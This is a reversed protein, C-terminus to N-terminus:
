SVNGNSLLEVARTFSVQEKFMYWDIVDGSAGCGHCFYFNNKINLSPSKDNHFPCIAMYRHHKILKELPFERARAVREIDTGKVENTFLKVEFLLRKLEKELKPSHTELYKQKKIAIQNQLYERRMEYREYEPVDKSMDRVSKMVAPYHNKYYDEEIRCAADYEEDSLYITRPPVPM